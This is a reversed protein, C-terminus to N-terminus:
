PLRVRETARAVNTGYLGIFRELLFDANSRLAASQVVFMGSWGKTLKSQARLAGHSYKTEMDWVEIMIATNDGSVLTRLVVPRNHYVVGEVASEKLQAASKVSYGDAAMIHALLKVYFVDESSPDKDYPLITYVASPANAIFSPDRSTEYTFETSKSARLSQCSALLLASVLSASVATVRKM